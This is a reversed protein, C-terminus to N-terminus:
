PVGRQFDYLSQCTANLFTFLQKLLIRFDPIDAFIAYQSLDLCFIFLYSCCYYIKLQCFNDIGSYTCLRLLVYLHACHCFVTKLSGFPLLVSAVCVSCKLITDLKKHFCQQSPYLLVGRRLIYYESASIILTNPANKHAM